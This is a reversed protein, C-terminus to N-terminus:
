TAVSVGHYAYSTSLTVPTAGTGWSNSGAKNRLGGSSSWDLPSNLTLWEDGINVGDLQLAAGAQVTTGNTATGDTSLAGTKKLTLTGQQVNTAGTFTNANSGGLILEGGGWKNLSNSNSGAITSNITLDGSVFLHGQNAGFDFTPTTLANGTGSSALLSGAGGTVGTLALTAGANGALTLNNGRILVGNLQKTGSLPTTNSGDYLYISGTAAANIDGTAYATYPTVSTNNGTHRVFDIQGSSSQIVAYRLIDNPSTGTLAPASTFVIKNASSTGLSTGTGVFRVNAGGQQTIGAITLTASNGAGTVSSEIVNSRPGNTNSLTVGGITETNAGSGALFRISGGALSTTTSDAVRNAVATTTNDLVLSGGTTVTIAQGTAASNLTGAGNLRLEGGDITVPGSGTSAASLIVAGPGAAVFGLTGLAFGGSFTVTANSDNVAITPQASSATTAGSWTHTGRLVRLAGMTPSA